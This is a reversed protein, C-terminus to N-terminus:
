ERFNGAANGAHPHRHNMEIVERLYGLVKSLGAHVNAVFDKGTRASEQFTQIDPLIEKRKPFQIEGVVLFCELSVIESGDFGAAAWVPRDYGARRAPSM